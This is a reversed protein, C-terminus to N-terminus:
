NTKFNHILSYSINRGDSTKVCWFYTKNSEVTASYSNTSSSIPTTYSRVKAEDTDIYVEYTLISSDPDSVTWSLTIKNSVPTVSAGFTPATITAPFPPYSTIGAGALYFKNSSSVGTKTTKTSKSTIQWKYPQGRTLNVTATTIPDAVTKTTIVNTVLNTIALEYSDTNNAVAWTFVVDSTTTTINTGDECITNNSPLNLSVVDPAKIEPTIPENGSGGCSLVLASLLILYGYKLKNQMM